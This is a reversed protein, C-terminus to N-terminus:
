LARDNSDMLLLRPPPCSARRIPLDMQSTDGKQTCAIVQPVIYGSTTIPEVATPAIAFWAHRHLGPIGSNIHYTAKRHVCHDCSELQMCYIHEVPASVAQDCRFLVKCLSM